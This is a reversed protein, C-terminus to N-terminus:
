RLIGSQLIIAIVELIEREQAQQIRRRSPRPIEWGGSIVEPVVEPAEAGGYGDSYFGLLHGILADGDFGGSPAAPGGYGDSYFGLLHGILAEGDFGGSPAAAGGFGDSYFGIPHGILADGDFGELSASASAGGLFSFVSLHTLVM